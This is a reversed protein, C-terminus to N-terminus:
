EETINDQTNLTNNLIADLLKNKNQKWLRQSRAWRQKRNTPTPDLTNHPHQNKPPFYTLLLSILDSHPLSADLSLLESADRVVDLLAQQWEPEELNSPLDFYLNLLDIDINPTLISPQEHVLAPAVSALSLSPM